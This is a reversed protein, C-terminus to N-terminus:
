NNNNCIKCIYIEQFILRYILDGKEIANKCIFCDINFKNESCGMYMKKGGRNEHVKLVEEDLLYKEM